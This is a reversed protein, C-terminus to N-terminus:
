LRDPDGMEQIFRRRWDESLADRQVHLDVSELSLAATVGFLAAIRDVGGQSDAILDEYVLEAAPPGTRAFYGAWARYEDLIDALQRAIARRNYIAAGRAEQTGRYQETQLARAWSIAQGLVDRRVLRVFHLSPLEQTLRISRSVKRFQVAFLKVGYVGNATRGSTLVRQVQDRPRGPFDPDSIRRRGPANFYELPNGLVRTSSLIQGFWNSGSRPATCIVYGRLEAGGTEPESNM